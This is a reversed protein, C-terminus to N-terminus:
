SAPAMATFRWWDFVSISSDSILDLSGSKLRKIIKRQATEPSVEWQRVHGWWIMVDAWDLNENSLGQEPDDLKVLRIEFADSSADLRAAIENGIFNDYAESQKPQQEDWILVHITEADASPFHGILTLAFLLLTRMIM